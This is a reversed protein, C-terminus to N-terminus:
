NNDEVEKLWRGADDDEDEFSEEARADDNTLRNQMYTEDYTSMSREARAKAREAAAGRKDHLEFLPHWGTRNRQNSFPSDMVGLHTKFCQRLRSMYATTNEGPPVVRRRTMGLLIAAQRNPAGTRRNSLDFEALSVRRTEGRASISIMNNAALGADSLEGVFTFTIENPLLRDMDRFVQLSPSAIGSPRGSNNDKGQPGASEDTQASADGVKVVFGHKAAYKSFDELTVFAEQLLAGAAQPIPLNTRQSRPTLDGRKVASVVESSYDDKTSEMLASNRIAPSETVIVLDWDDTGSEAFRQEYPQWAMEDVPLQFPPLGSWLSYLAEWDGENLSVAFARNQDNDGCWQRKNADSLPYKKVAIVQRPTDEALKPHLALAFLEPIDRVFVRDQSEPLVIEIPMACRRADGEFGSGRWGPSPDGTKGGDLYARSIQHRELRDKAM